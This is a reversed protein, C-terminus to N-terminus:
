SRCAGVRQQPGRVSLLDGPATLAHTSSSRFLPFPSRSVFPHRIHEVVEHRCVCARGGAGGRVQQQASSILGNEDGSPRVPYPHAHSHLWCRPEYVHRLTIRAGFAAQAQGAHQRAFVSGELTAQARSGRATLLACVLLLCCCALVVPAQKVGRMGRRTGM